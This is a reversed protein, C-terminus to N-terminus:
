GILKINNKNDFDLSRDALSKKLEKIYKEFLDIEKEVQSIQKLDMNSINKRLKEFNKYSVCKKTEKQIFPEIKYENELDIVIHKTIFYFFLNNSVLTFKIKFFFQTYLNNTNM